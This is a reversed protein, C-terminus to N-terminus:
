FLIGQRVAFFHEEEYAIYRNLIRQFTYQKMWPPKCNLTGARNTLYKEIKEAMYLLRDKRNLCQSYYGLKACYRCLYLGNICYLKRMRANCAPCHFFYYFGGYNCPKKEVPIVYFGANYSVYLSYDDTLVAKVNYPYVKFCLRDKSNKVWELGEKSRFMDFSDIQYFLSCISKAM